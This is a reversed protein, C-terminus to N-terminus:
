SAAPNSGTLAFYVNLDELTSWGPAVSGSHGCDYVPYRGASGSGVLYHYVNFDPEGPKPNTENRVWDFGALVQDEPRIRAPDAEAGSVFLAFSSSIGFHGRVQQAVDLPVDNIHWSGTLILRRYDAETIYFNPKNM